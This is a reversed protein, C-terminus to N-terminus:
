LKRFFLNINKFIIQFNLKINIVSSFKTAINTSYTATPLTTPSLSSLSSSNRLTM